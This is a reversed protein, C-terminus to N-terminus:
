EFQLGDVNGNVIWLIESMILETFNIEFKVAKILTSQIREPNGKQFKLLSLKPRLYM